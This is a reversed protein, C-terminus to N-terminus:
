ELCRGRRLTPEAALKSSMEAQRQHRQCTVFAVTATIGSVRDQSPKNRGSVINRTETKLGHRRWNLQGKEIYRLHAGLAKAEHRYRQFGLLRFPEKAASQSTPKSKPLHSTMCNAAVSPPRVLAGETHPKTQHHQFDALLPGEGQSKQGQHRHHYSSTIEAERHVSANKCGTTSSGQCGPGSRCHRRM